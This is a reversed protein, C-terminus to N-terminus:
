YVNGEKRKYMINTNLCSKMKHKEGLSEERKISKEVNIEDTKKKKFRPIKNSHQARPFM